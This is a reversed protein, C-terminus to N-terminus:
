NGRRPCTSVGFLSYAPCSGVVGTLLPVVGLYGWYGITGAAALAVLLLGAGVRLARDLVGVNNSLFSMPREGHSPFFFRARLGRARHQSPDLRPRKPWNRRVSGALRAYFFRKAIEALALYGALMGALWAFFLAPPPGIEFYRRLPTAVAAPRDGASGALGGHARRRAPQGLAKRAHPDRLDNAGAHGAVRHVVGHSVVNCRRAAGLAAALRDACRLASSLAGFLWMYRRIFKLELARPRRLDSNDVRGLPIATQSLDYLVNNLLILAPADNIDDGTYGVVHGRSRLALVIRNKQAPDVRCYLTTRGVRARLATDDMAAIEHGTRVGAVPIRLLTCLHQAVLESDGSVIRVSVGRRALAALAEGAGAKPPDIFAYAAFVLANGDRVDAHSPGRARRALGGGAGATGPTRARPLPRAAPGHRRRGAGCGIDSDDRQFRDCLALMDDPAGKM